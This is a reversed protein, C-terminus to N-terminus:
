IWRHPAVQFGTDRVVCDIIEQRREARRNEAQMPYLVVTGDPPLQGLQEPFGRRAQAPEDSDQAVCVTVGEGTLAAAFADFERRPRPQPINRVGPGSSVTPEAGDRRQIRFAEPSGDSPARRVAVPGSRGPSKGGQM